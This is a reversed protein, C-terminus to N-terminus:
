RKKGGRAFGGGSRGDLALDGSGLFLLALGVLVVLVIPELSPVPLRFLDWGYLWALHGLTCALGVGAALRCRFGLLVAAGAAFQGWALVVQWFVSLGPAWATGGSAMIKVFGHYVYVPGLALRLMLPGLNERCYSEFM